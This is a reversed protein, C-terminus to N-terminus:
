EKRSCLASGVAARGLGSWRWGDAILHVLAAAVSAGGARCPCTGHMLVVRTGAVVMAMVDGNDGGQEGKGGVKEVASPLIPFEPEVM